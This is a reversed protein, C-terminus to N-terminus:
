SAQREEKAEYGFQLKGWLHANRHDQREWQVYGAWAGSSNSNNDGYVAYGVGAPSIRGAIALQGLGTGSTAQGYVASADSADGSYIQGFVGASSGGDSGIGQVGYLGGWGKVGINSNSTGYVGLGSGSTDDGEIAYGAGANVSNFCPTGSGYSCDYQQAYATHSIATYGTAMLISTFSLL